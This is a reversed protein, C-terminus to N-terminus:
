QSLCGYKIFTGFFVGLSALLVWPSGHMLLVIGWGIFFTFLLFTLIALAFKHELALGLADSGSAARCVVVNLKQLIQELAFLNQPKDDVVLIKPKDPM